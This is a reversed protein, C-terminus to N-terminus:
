AQTWAIADQAHNSRSTYVALIWRQKLNSLNVTPFNLTKLVTRAEFIQSRNEWILRKRHLVTFVGNGATCNIQNSRNTLALTTQNDRRWLCTLGGNQLANALRNSGVIRLNM